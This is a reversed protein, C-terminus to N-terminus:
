VESRRIGTTSLKDPSWIGSLGGTMINGGMGAVQGAVNLGSSITSGIGPIRSAGIRNNIEDQGFGHQMNRYDMLQNQNYLLENPTAQYTSLLGENGHFRDRQEMEASWRRNADDRAAAAAGASAGIAAKSNADQSMGSAAGLRSQNILGQTGLDTDASGKLDSSIQGQKRIDMDGAVGYGSLTNKSTLDALRLNNDALTKSADMRGARISDSLGLETDRAADASAQAQNRALKFGARDWGPGLNNISRRQAMDGRFTDYNSAIGSATRNRVNSKDDETYGGTQEVDELYKRQIGARDAASVGGTKAFESLGAIAGDANKFNGATNRLREAVSTVNSLRTPDFGGEKNGLENWIGMYGSTNPSNGSGSASGGGGGGSGSSPQAPRAGASLGGYYDKNGTAANSYNDWILGREGDSRTTLEDVRAKSEGIGAQSSERDRDVQASIANQTKRQDAKGM